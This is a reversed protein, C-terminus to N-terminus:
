ALFRLDRNLEAPYALTRRDGDWAILLERDRVLYDVLWRKQEPLPNEVVVVLKASPVDQLYRYEYLQSIARRIQDHANEQRTSKMEFLYPREHWVTSLDVYKNRKPVAGAERIRRAVLTTLMRHADNARERAVEDVLVPLYSRADRARRAVEEYIQLDDRPPSLPEDLADYEVVPLDTPLRGRILFRDEKERLVGISNLWSVVTSVRRHIMGRTTPGTVARVFQDIEGRSAGRGGKSELFSIVRQILRARLVAEAAMRKRADPQATVFQRGAPTLVARNRRPVNRVFGLLEAALRYYRGQREDLGLDAGIAQYTTAGGAVADVTRLVSDLTDAQPIERSPIRSM